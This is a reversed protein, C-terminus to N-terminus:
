VQMAAAARSEAPRLHTQFWDVTATVMEGFAHGEEFLHGGGEIVRLQSGPPMRRAARRVSPLLPDADGVILLTPVSVQAVLGEYGDLPPARLVVARAEVGLRTTAYLAATGGSSSGAVGIRRAALGAPAGAFRVAAAIDDAFQEVSAGADGESEGHGSLDVLLSAIGADLLRSAIVLNRPSDKGSGLGHAFVVLPAQERPLLLLGALRWGRSNRFSVPEGNM